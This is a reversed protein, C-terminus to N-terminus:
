KRLNIEMKNMEERIANMDYTSRSTFPLYVGIGEVNESDDYFFVIGYRNYWYQDYIEDHEDPVGYAADVDTLPDGMRIFQETMGVFNEWCNLQFCIDDDAMTYSESASIFYGIMDLTVSEVVHIIVYGGTVPVEIYGLYDWDTKNKITGWLEELEMDRVGVGAFINTEFGGRIVESCTDSGCAGTAILQVTFRGGFSYIHSPHTDTATTGDGFDWLYSSAHTSQNTFYIVEGLDVNDDSMSFSAVPPYCVKVAMSYMDTTGPKLGTATLTITYIGESAYSHTPNTVTSTSGDGFDWSYSEAWESQNTFTITEGPVAETKDMTFDAVPPPYVMTISSTAADTDGGAGTATLQITFTGADSYEHTPNEATSTEGDGFSWSYSVANVSQNTFTVTEGIEVTNKDVIFAAFPPPYPVGLTVSYSDSGDKNIAKLEVTYVGDDNYSHTPNDSTSTTGDGFDWIYSSAKTSANTFLVTEGVEPDSPSFTFSATPPEEKCGALLVAILIVVLNRYNMM